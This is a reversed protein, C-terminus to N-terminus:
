RTEIEAASRWSRPTITSFRERLSAISDATFARKPLWRTGRPTLHIAFGSRGEVVGRVISWPVVIAAGTADRTLVHDANIEYTVRKQSASLGRHGLVPIGFWLLISVPIVLILVGDDVESSSTARRLLDIAVAVVLLIGATRFLQRGSWYFARIQDSLTIFTSGTITQPSSPGTM